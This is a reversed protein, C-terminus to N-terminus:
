GSQSAPAAALPPPNAPTNQALHQDAAPAANPAPQASSDSAAPASAPPTQAASPAPAQAGSGSPPTPPTVAEPASSPAASRTTDDHKAGEGAPQRAAIFLGGAILCLGIVAIYWDRFRNWM